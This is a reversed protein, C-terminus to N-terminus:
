DPHNQHSVQNHFSWLGSKSHSRPPSNPSHIRKALYVQHAFQKKAYM